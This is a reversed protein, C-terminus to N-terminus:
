SRSKFIGLLRDDLDLQEIGLNPFRRIARGLPDIRDRIRRIHFDAFGSDDVSPVDM